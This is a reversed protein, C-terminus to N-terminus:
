HIKKKIQIIKRKVYWTRNNIESIVDVCVSFADVFISMDVCLRNINIYM